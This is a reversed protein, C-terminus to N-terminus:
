QRTCSMTLQDIRVEVLNQEEVSEFHGGGEAGMVSLSGMLQLARKVLGGWTWLNIQGEEGIAEFSSTLM